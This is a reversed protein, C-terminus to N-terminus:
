SWQSGIWSNPSKLDLFIKKKLYKKIIKLSKLKSSGVDTIIHKPTLYKNIKLIIKKYESMPTCFIILESQPLADHLKKVLVGPLKLRKIKTINKKSKEYVFIKKALRKKSIRRLLSSGLLGCGIILVNKM